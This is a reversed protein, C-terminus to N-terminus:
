DEVRLLHLYANVRLYPCMRGTDNISSWFGDYAIIFLWYLFVQNSSWLDDIMRKQLALANRKRILANVATQSLIKGQLEFILHLGDCAGDKCKCKLKHLLINPHHFCFM